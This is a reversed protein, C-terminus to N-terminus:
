QLNEKPSDKDALDSDAVINKQESDPLSDLTPQINPASFTDTNSLKAKKIIFNGKYLIVTGVSFCFVACLAVMTYHVAPHFHANSSWIDFTQSVLTLLFHSTLSIGVNHTKLDAALYFFGVSSYTVLNLLVYEYNHPALILNMLTPLGYIITTLALTLGSMKGQRKFFTAAVYRFYLEDCFVTLTLSIIWIFFVSVNFTRDFAGTKGILLLVVPVLSLLLTFSFYKGRFPNDKKFFMLFLCLLIFFLRGLNEFLGPVKYGFRSFVDTGLMVDACSGIVTTLGMTLAGLLFTAMKLAYRRKEEKTM